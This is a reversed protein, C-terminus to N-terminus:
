NKNFFRRIRDADITRYNTEEEVKGDNILLILPMRGKTIDLFKHTNVIVYNYHPSHTDLYFRQVSATDGRVWFIVNINNTDIDSKRVLAGIRTSAMKCYPCYTSYFALMKRGHMFSAPIEKERIADDLAQQNHEAKNFSGKIFLDPPSAILPTALAGIFLLGLVLTQYRWKLSKSKRIIFLFVILVLNKVLSEMPSFDVLEGLCYCNDTSGKIIQFVLFFSMLVLFIFILKWIFKFRFKILLAVAIFLELGILLRAFMAAADFDFFSVRYVYVEFTDISQLKGIASIVFFASLVIRLALRLWKM